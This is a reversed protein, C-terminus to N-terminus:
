YSDDGAISDGVQPETDQSLAALRIAQWQQFLDQNWESNWESNRYRDIAQELEQFTQPISVSRITDRLTDLM